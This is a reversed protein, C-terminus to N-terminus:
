AKLLFLGNESLLSDVASEVQYREHWYFTGSIPNFREDYQADDSVIIGCSTLAGISEPAFSAWGNCLHWDFLEYFHEVDNWQAHDAQNEALEERGADTLTIRLGNPLKEVNLYNRTAIM